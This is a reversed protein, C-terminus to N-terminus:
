EQYKMFRRLVAKEGNSMQLVVDISLQDEEFVVEGIVIGNEVLSRKRIRCITVV